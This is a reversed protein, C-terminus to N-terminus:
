LAGPVSEDDLDHAPACHRLTAGRRFQRHPSPRPRAATRAAPLDRGRRCRSLRHRRVRPRGAAAAGRHDALCLLFGRRLSRGSAGGLPSLHLEPGRPSIWGIQDQVGHLAPLLLHRTGHRARTGGIEIRGGAAARQLDPGPRVRARGRGARYRGRRARPCDARIRRPASGDARRWSTSACRPPRSVRRHGVQPDWADITLLNTDVQDPFHLTMFVLGPVCGTPTARGSRSPRRAALEGAGARRRGGGTPQRGGSLHRTLRRASDAVPLRREAGRYQLLRAHPRHDPAAPYQEDLTDVPPQHQVPHFPAPPGELPAQWLRGHLFQSGPTRSTRVPGSSVAWSRWVPSLEHRHADRHCRACSM